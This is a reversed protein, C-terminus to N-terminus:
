KHETIYFKHKILSITPQCKTLLSLFNQRFLFACVQFTISALPPGMGRYLASPGESRLIGRLLGIASTASARQGPGASIARAPDPSPQQLRIRLTDLPHGALVGAMGGVGGAVFERGCSSALFEPWFEM